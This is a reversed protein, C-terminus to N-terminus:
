SLGDLLDHLARRDAIDISPEAAGKVGRLRLHFKGKRAPRDLVKRLGEEILARVSSGRRIAERRARDLLADGIVVTTKM